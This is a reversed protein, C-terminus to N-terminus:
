LYKRIMTILEAPLFPKTLFDNLGAEQAMEQIGAMAHASIAIIPLNKYEEKKRLIRTVEMGDIDPLSLDMLILNPRHTNCYALAENGHSTVVTHFGYYNLIKEALLSNDENDEVILIEKKPPDTM